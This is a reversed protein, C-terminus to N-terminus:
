DRLLDIVMPCAGVASKSPAISCNGQNPRGAM